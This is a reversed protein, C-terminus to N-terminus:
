LPPRSASLADVGGSNSRFTDYRCGAMGCDHLLPIYDQGFASGGGDLYRKYHVRIDGYTVHRWPQLARLAPKVTNYELKKVFDKVRRNRKIRLVRRVM